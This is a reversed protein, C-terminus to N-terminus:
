RSKKTIKDIQCIFRKLDDIDMEIGCYGGENYVILARKISGDAQLRTICEAGDTGRELEVPVDIFETKHIHIVHLEKNWSNPFLRAEAIIQVDSDLYDEVNVGLLPRKYHSPGFGNKDLYGRDYITKPRDLKEKIIKYGPINPLNDLYEQSTSGVTIMYDRVILDFVTHDPKLIEIASSLNHKKM